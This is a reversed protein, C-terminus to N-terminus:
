QLSNGNMSTPLFYGVWEIVGRQDDAMTPGSTQERFIRQRAKFQRRLKPNSGNLKVDATTFVGQDDDM